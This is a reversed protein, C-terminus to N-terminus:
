EGGSTGNTYATRLSDALPQPTVYDNNIMNTEADWRLGVNVGAGQDVSWDDQIYGGFQVNDSKITPNGFGVLAEFPTQWNEAGAPLQLGPQRCLVQNGYVVPFGRRRWGQIRSRRWLQNRRTQHTASRFAGRSSTRSRTRAASECSVSTTRASSTQNRHRDSELHLVALEGPSREALSRRRVQLQLGRTPISRSTRPRRSHPRDASAASTTTGVFPSAARM